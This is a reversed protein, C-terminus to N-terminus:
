PDGGAPRRGTLAALALVVWALIQLSGGTPAVTTAGEMGGVTKLYISGSFLLSGLALGLGALLVLLAHGRSGLLGTALLGVGAVYQQQLGRGFAEYDAAVLSGKLGHAHWADLGVAAAMWVAGLAIWLRRPEPM